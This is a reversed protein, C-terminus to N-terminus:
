GAPHLVRATYGIECGYFRCEDTCESAPAPTVQIELFYDYASNDVPNSEGSSVASTVSQLSPDATGVTFGENEALSSSTTSTLPRSLLNFRLVQFDHAFAPDNDYFYCSVFTMKAGDPLEVPAQLFFTTSGTPHLYGETSYELLGESLETSVFQYAGIWKIYSRSSDYRFDGGTAVDGGAFSGGQVFFDFESR